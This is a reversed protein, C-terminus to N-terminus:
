RCGVPAASTSGQSASELRTLGIKALRTAIDFRNRRGAAYHSVHVANLMDAEDWGGFDRVVDLRDWLEPHQQAMIMDSYHEVGDYYAPKGPAVITKTWRDLQGKTVIVAPTLAHHLATMRGRFPMNEVDQPCLGVNIVDIDLCLARVGYPLAEAYALWRRWCAMEYDEPNVTPMWTLNDYLPHQRAHSDNLVLVDWGAARWSDTMLRCLEADEGFQSGALQDFYTLVRM